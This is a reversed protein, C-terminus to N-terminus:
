TDCDNTCQSSLSHIEAEYTSIKTINVCRIAGIRFDPPPPNTKKYKTVPKYVNFFVQYPNMRRKNVPLEAKRGAKVFQLSSFVQDIVIKSHCIRLSISHSMM